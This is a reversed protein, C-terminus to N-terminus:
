HEVIVQTDVNPKGARMAGARLSTRVRMGGGRLVAKDLSLTDGDAEADPATPRESAAMAKENTTEM